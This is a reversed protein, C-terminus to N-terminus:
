LKAKREKKLAERVPEIFNALMKKDAGAYVNPPSVNWPPIVRRGDPGSSTIEVVSGGSYKGQQILELMYEAVEEAPVHKVRDYSLHKRVGPVSDWLPTPVVGPCISTVKVGELLDLMTMSKVFGWIAHKSACYLPSRISANIGAISSVLCVVGKKDKGLLARIALRTLKIPHNVNIDICAYDTTESDEWFSSWSPEFIAASAVYVDPVDNWKDQSLQILAQLEAWNRVDCRQFIVADSSDVFQQAEPILRLDAIIIRAGKAAAQRCLQLGIGSGGGTVLVIKNDVPFDGFM